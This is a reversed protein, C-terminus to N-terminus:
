KKKKFAEKIIKRASEVDGPELEVLGDIIKQVSQKMEASIGAPAHFAVLSEEKAKKSQEEKKEGTMLWDTDCNLREKLRERIKPGIPSRGSLLDSMQQPSIGLGEAFRKQWGHGDGFLKQGFGVFRELIQSEKSNM